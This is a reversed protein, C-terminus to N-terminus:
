YLKERVMQENNFYQEKKRVSNEYYTLVSFNDDFYIQISYNDKSQYNKKHLLVDNEWYEYDPINELNNNFFYKQMKSTKVKDKTIVEKEQIIRGEKDYTWFLEQKQNELIIIKKSLKNFFNRAYEYEETKLLKNENISKIQWIEKKILRYEKDYFLRFVNDKYKHVFSFNNQNIKPLFIEENYEMIVLNQSSSILRNEVFEKENEAVTFPADIISQIETELQALEEEFVEEQASDENILESDKQVNLELSKSPQISQENIEEQVVQNSDEMVKNEQSNKKNCSIFFLLFLFFFCFLKNKYVLFNTLM